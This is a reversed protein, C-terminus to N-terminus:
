RVVIRWLGIGGVAAGITAFLAGFWPLFAATSRQSAVYTARDGGYVFEAQLEAGERGAVITGIATVTNGAAFGRYRKTGEGSLGSWTLTRDEQWSVPPAQLAYDTNAIQAVGDSLEILLRPTAREDERWEEDGDDDTGRYEERVYAVLDRFRTPNRESIRGELLAERGPMSDDLAAASLTRLREARDAAASASRAGFVGMGVGAVVFALGIVTLLLTVFSGRLRYM